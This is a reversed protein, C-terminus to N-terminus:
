LGDAVALLMNELLESAFAESNYKRSVIYVTIHAFTPSYIHILKFETTM